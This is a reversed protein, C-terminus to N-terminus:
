HIYVTMPYSYFWAFICATLHINMINKFWLKLAWFHSTFHLFIICLLFQILKIANVQINQASTHLVCMTGIWFCTNFSFSLFFRNLLQFSSVFWIHAANANHVWWYIDLRRNILNHAFVHINHRSVDIALYVNFM